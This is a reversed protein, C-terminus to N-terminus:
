NFTGSDRLESCFNRAYRQGEGIVKLVGDLAGPNLRFEATAQVFKGGAIGMERTFLVPMQGAWELERNLITQALRGNGDFFPHIDAIAMMTVLGRSVGPPLTPYIQSFYYRLTGVVLHPKALRRREHGLINSTIKFQGPVMDPVDRVALAHWFRLHMEAKVPDGLEGRAARAAFVVAEMNASELLDGEAQAIGSLQDKAESYEAVSEVYPIMYLAEILPWEGPLDVPGPMADLSCEQAAQAYRQIMEIVERDEQLQSEPLSILAGCLTNPDGTALAKDIAPQVHQFQALALRISDIEKREEAPLKLQELVQLQRDAEDFRGLELQVAALNVRALTFDFNMRLAESLLTEAEGKRRAVKFACALKNLGEPTRQIANASEYAAIAEQWNGQLRQVDGMALHAQILRRDLSLAKRLSIAADQLSGLDMQTVGLNVWGEPKNPTARTATRFHGLAEGLMGRRYAKQGRQM